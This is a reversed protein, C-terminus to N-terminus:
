RSELDKFFDKINSRLEILRDVEPSWGRRVIERREAFSKSTKKGRGGIGYMQGLANFGGSVAPRIYKTIRAFMEEHDRLRGLLATPLSAEFELQNGEPLDLVSELAIICHCMSSAVRVLDSPSGRGLSLRQLARESDGCAAVADRAISLQSAVGRQRFFDVLDLRSNIRVSDTLPSALRSYLLRAGMSSATRDIMSALSRRRVYRSPTQANSQVIHASDLNNGPVAVIDTTNKSDSLNRLSAATLNLSNRSAADMFMHAGISLRKIPQLVFSQGKQTFEVFELLTSATVLEYGSITEMSNGRHQNNWTKGLVQAITEADARIEQTYDNIDIDLTKESIETIPCAIKNEAILKRLVSFHIHKQYKPVLLESPRMWALYAEIDESKQATAVLFEGSCINLWSISAIPQQLSRLDCTGSFSSPHELICALFNSQGPRDNAFDDTITGPTVLRVVERKIISSRGKRSRAVEASEMQECIAAKFGQKVLKGLYQHLLHVPVGAMPIDSRKTLVIDLARSATVADNYFFEYFDGVRMFLVYEPYLAKNQRFQEMLPSEKKSDGPTANGKSTTTTSLFHANRSSFVLDKSYPILIARTAAIHKRSLKECRCGRIFNAVQRLM